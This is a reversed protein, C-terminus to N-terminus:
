RLVNRVQLLHLINDTTISDDASIVVQRGCTLLSVRSGWTLPVRVKNLAQYGPGPKM